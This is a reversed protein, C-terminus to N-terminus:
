DFLLLVALIHMDQKQLFLLVSYTFRRESLFLNSSMRKVNWKAFGAHGNQLVSASYTRASFGRPTVDSSRESEIELTM